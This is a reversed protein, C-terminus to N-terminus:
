NWSNGSGTIRYDPANNKLVEYGTNIQEVRNGNFVGSGNVKPDVSIGDEGPHIIENREFTIQQDWTGTLHIGRFVPDLVFNDQILVNSIKASGPYIWIAGRHQKGSNGGGRAIFNRRVVAGTVPHMPYSGPLNITFCGTMSNDELDNYEIVHGYGGALDCNHGVWIALATNYRMTIDHTVENRSIESLIALGDDGNGRIHNNEVLCDSSGANINIADAYTSRIRCNQITGSLAHSMWFGTNTHEIWVNEVKWHTPSGAWEPPKGGATFPKAGKQRIDNFPVDLYLDRVETGEGMLTFGMKGGWDVPANGEVTGILKTYWMGAGQVKVGDLVFKASHNYTGSPIWVTKNATKADAICHTIAETCDTKGDGLAGYDTISLYTGKAPPPLPGAVEELDVLDIRYYEADDSEDRQLRLKDGAKIGGTIFYHSEDWFIQPRGKAPDNSASGKLDLYNWNHFSSLTLAQRKKGNVYLSLSANNGGGHEADPICHRVVITNAEDKSTFEVYQGTAELSVYGRHSAEMEPTLELGLPAGQMRVVRGTTQNDTAEAEYTIFPVAAGGPVSVGVGELAASEGGILLTSFSEFTSDHAKGLLRGNVSIQLEHSDINWTLRVSKPKLDSPIEITGLESDGGSFAEEFKCLRITSGSQCIVGYGRMGTEDFLGARYVKTAKADWDVTLQFDTTLTRGLRTGVVGGNLIVRRPGAKIPADGRALYWTGSMPNAGQSWGSYSFEDALVPITGQSWATCVAALMAVVATGITLNKDISM